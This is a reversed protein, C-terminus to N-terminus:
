DDHHCFSPYLKWQVYKVEDEFVGPGQVRITKAQDGTIDIVELEGSKIVFFKPDRDGARFLAEGARFTKTSAGAYLGLQAVQEESLKPFAMANLDQAAM